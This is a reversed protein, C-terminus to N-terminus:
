AYMMYWNRILYLPTWVIASAAATIPPGTARSIAPPNNRRVQTYAEANRKATKSKSGFQCFAMWLKAVPEPNMPSACPNLTRALPLTHVTTQVKTAAMRVASAALIRVSPFSAMRVQIPKADIKVATNITTYTEIEQLGKCTAGGVM